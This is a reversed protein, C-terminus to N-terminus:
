EKDGRTVGSTDRELIAIFEESSKVEIGFEIAKACVAKDGTVVVWTSGLLGEDSKRQGEVACAVVIPDANGENAFLNVLKTDSDPVTAMVEIIITLLGSTVPYENNKLDNVNPFYRAEHLVETPILCNERFFDSM